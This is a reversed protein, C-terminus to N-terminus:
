GRNKMEERVIGRISELLKDRASADLATRMEHLLGDLRLRTAATLPQDFEGSSAVGQLDNLWNRLLGYTLEGEM